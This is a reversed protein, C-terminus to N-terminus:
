PRLVEKVFEKLDWLRLGDIHERGSRETVYTGEDNGDASLALIGGSGSIAEEAGRSLSRTLILAKKNNRLHASLHTQLHDDNFGYGIILYQSANDIAINAKERHTDFPRDYGVQYKRRGPMIILRDSDLSLPCRIPGLESRFWDLSGHPKLVKVRDRLIPQTRKGRRRIGGYFSLISKEFDLTGCHYGVFGTDVCIGAHEIAVEILRDYNTTVVASPMRMHPLLGTFPLRRKGQIVEKIIVAERTLFLDATISAIQTELVEGPEVQHLANELGVGNQLLSAIDEWERTQGTTIIPPVNQLLYESLEKMGPIGEAASLGSGVITVLGDAFYGQLRKKLVNMDM